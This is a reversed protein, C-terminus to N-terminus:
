ASDNTVTNLLQTLGWMKWEFTPSNLDSWERYKVSDPSSSQCSALSVLWGPELASSNLQAEQVATAHLNAVSLLATFTDLDRDLIPVSTVSLRLDQDSLYMDLCSFSSVFTFCEAAFKSGYENWVYM